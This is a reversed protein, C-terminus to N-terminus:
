YILQSDSNRLQEFGNDLMPATNNINEAQKKMIKNESVRFYFKMYWVKKSREKLKSM